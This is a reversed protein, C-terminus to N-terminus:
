AAYVSHHGFFGAQRQVNGVVRQAGHRLSRSSDQLFELEELADRGVGTSERRNREGATAPSLEPPPLSCHNSLRLVDRETGYRKHRQNQQVQRRACRRPELQGDAANEQREEAQGHQEVGLGELENEEHAALIEIGGGLRAPPLPHAARLGGLPPHRLHDGVGLLAHGRRLLDAVAELLHAEARHGM